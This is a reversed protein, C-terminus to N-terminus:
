ELLQSVPNISCMCSETIPKVGDIEGKEIPYYTTAGSVPNYYALLKVLTTSAEIKAIITSPISDTINNGDEDWYLTAAITASYDIM